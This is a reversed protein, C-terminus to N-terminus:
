AFDKRCLRHQEPHKRFDMRLRKRVPCTYSASAEQFSQGVHNEPRGPIRRRTEGDVIDRGFPGCNEPERFDGQGFPRVGVGLGALEAERSLFFAGEKNRM